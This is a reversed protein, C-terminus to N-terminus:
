VCFQSHFRLRARRGPSTALGRALPIITISVATKAVSQAVKGVAEYRQGTASLEGM